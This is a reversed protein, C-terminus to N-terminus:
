FFSEPDLPIGSQIISFYLINDSTSLKGIISKESVEDGIRLETNSLNGYISEYGDEHSLKVSMRNNATIIDVVVGSSSAYIPNNSRILIGDLSIDDNYKNDEFFQGYKAIISGDTPLNFKNATTSITPNSIIDSMDPIFIKDGVDLRTDALGNIEQLTKWGLNPCYENTITSLMDGSQVTYYRGNRDPIKLVVGEVVGSINKIENISIITQVKLGYLSAISNLDEDSTVVHNVFKVAGEAARAAKVKSIDLAMANNNTEEDVVPTISSDSINAVENEFEKEDDPVITEISSQVAVNTEDSNKNSSNTIYFYGAVLCLVLLIFFLVLILKNGKKNGNDFDDPDNPNSSGDMNFNEINM